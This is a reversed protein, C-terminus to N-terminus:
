SSHITANPTNKESLRVQLALLDYETGHCMSYPSHIYLFVHM